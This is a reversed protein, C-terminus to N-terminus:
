RPAPTLRFTRASLTSETAVTTVTLTATAADWATEWPPLRTPFVTDIQLPQGRLRPFTLAVQGTGPRRHWLHLVGGATGALELALWPDEWGPLGLPWRPTATALLGRLEGYADVAATVLALEPPSMRDLHGSLYLRGALGTVLTAAAEEPDMGPQPYAWNACQEPAVSLPAAVAIAPYRFADQQDSTSQLQMRSLLGYDMRMAGSACNELILDPHRDLVGDLWDHYARTHGLLGVGPSVGDRDTGAGPRINYDLKFYGVGLVTVLRDVVEDLHARAAPHRLDLHYRGAEVVREGARQWFAEVPLRKAMPSRVGIVEPELWLGPTMGHQRIRELLVGLGGTFRHTSPVWEGVSDWWDEGDDYWGADICFVEAGAAAAADILPRLRESSPDGMLTNMYDNFIVPLAANDRHLRRLARRYATLAAVASDLDPGFALAVPVTSHSEGPALEPQWQHDEDTPGSLALSCGDLDEGIEWRWGGSSEVQWLWTQGAEAILGGVPLDGDTSWSGQSRAMVGNRGGQGHASLSLDALGASRLPLREWRGEGLWDSTGSLLDLREAPTPTTPDGSLCIPLALTTVSQLVIPVTGTNTVRVQARVVDAGAPSSLWCDVAIAHQPNEAVVHIAPWGREDVDEKVEVVRIGAGLATGTLRNAARLRGHGVALIEVMPQLPSDDAGNRTGGTTAGDATSGGEIGQAAAAPSPSVLRLVLPDGPRPAVVPVTAAGDQAYGNM